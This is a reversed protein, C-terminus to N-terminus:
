YHYSPTQDQQRTKRSHCRHCLAQWNNEDWFLTQNGRHPLIHDVDTARVYQGEKLCEVCLPHTLLFRKRAKQWATGYGLRASSRRDEPHLPKHQECYKMGPPILEACGPHRCPVKPKIPM